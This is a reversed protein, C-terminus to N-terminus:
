NNKIIKFQKVAKGQSIEVIYMGSILNSGFLYGKSNIGAAAFVKVGYMNTVRINIKENSGSEVTLVFEGSSSNPNNTIKARFSQSGGNATVASSLNNNGALQEFSCDARCKGLVDGHALHDAVADEDVCLTICPNKQSGTRHCLTVKTVGSKGAFCRADESKITDFRQVICGDNDTVTTTFIADNILTVKVSLASGSSEESYPANVPSLSCSNNFSPADSTWTEDGADNIYNCVLARNMEMKINYPGVGGSPTVIITSSQDASYGFYQQKNYSNAAVTLASERTIKFTCTATLGSADTATYTIDATSGNAIESGPAPGGTQTITVGPCNDIVAPDPWAAISQCASLHVDQPCTISPPENDTVTVDFKCTTTACSNSASVVVHTTGKNFAAGSGTGSGTATTAGSFAYSITLPATGTASLSYNVLASCLGPDTNVAINPSCLTITPSLREVKIINLPPTATTGSTPCATGFGLAAGNLQVQGITNPTTVVIKFTITQGAVLVDSTTVARLCVDNGGAVSAVWNKSASVSIISASSVTGANPFVIRFRGDPGGANDTQTITFTLEQEVGGCLDTYSPGITWNADTFSTEAHLASSQGDATALLVSNMEDEDAPVLWTTVFNGTNDANILWPQHAGSNDNDGNENYHLVQLKVTEGAYFGSGTITVTSGPAYDQKDTILTAQAKIYNTATLLLFCSLALTFKSVFSLRSQKANPYTFHM